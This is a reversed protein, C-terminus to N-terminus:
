PRALSPMRTEIPPMSVSNRCFAVRDPLRIPKTVSSSMVPVISASTNGFTSSRTLVSSVGSVATIREPRSDM